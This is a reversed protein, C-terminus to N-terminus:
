ARQLRNPGRRGTILEYITPFYRELIVGLVFVFLTVFVFNFYFTYQQEIIAATLRGVISWIPETHLLYVFFTFGSIFLVKKSNLKSSFYILLIVGLLIIIKQLALSYETFQKEYWLDFSPDLYVRFIILGIYLVLFMFAYKTEISILRELRSIRPVFFSGLAFFFLTNINILYWGSVIPFVRIEFLWLAFLIIISLYSFRRVFISVLPSILFLIMLDRLFWFQISRPHIIIDNIIGSVSLSLNGQSLYGYLIQKALFSLYILLSCLLYPILLTRVRKKLGNIWSSINEYDKFFFLGSAFAFFPVAVRGVGNLLSEQLFYNLNILEFDAIKGVSRNHVAIVLLIALLKATCFARSLNSSLKM